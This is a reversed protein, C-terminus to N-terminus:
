ADGWFAMNNVVFTVLAHLCEYSLMTFDLQYWWVSMLNIDCLDSILCKFLVEQADNRTHCCIEGHM